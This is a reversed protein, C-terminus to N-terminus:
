QLNVLERLRNGYEEITEFPSKSLNLATEPDDLTSGSPVPNHLVSSIYRQIEPSGTHMTLALDSAPNGTAPDPAFIMSLLPDEVFQRLNDHERDIKPENQAQIFRFTMEKKM